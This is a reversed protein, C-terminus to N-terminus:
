TAGRPAADKVPEDADARSGDEGGVAGAIAYLVGNIFAPSRESGFDHALEIAENLVVTGPTETHILEYAALRLINRDVAAMRSVRWNRAHDAICVDLEERCLDVGRVLDVAFVRAGEHLDFSAAVREFAEEISPAPGSRAGRALDLAYLVQLAARRSQRRAATPKRSV